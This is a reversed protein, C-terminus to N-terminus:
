FYGVPGAEISTQLLKELYDGVSRFCVVTIAGDADMWLAAAVQGLRTRRMTGPAFAAPSLDAPSLKALVERADDGELRFVARADSMDVVLHHQRALGKGIEAIARATHAYALVLLLEDPAMWCAGTAGDFQASNAGPVDVGVVATVASRLAVDGLDGRLAIMGQATIRTLTANCAVPADPM